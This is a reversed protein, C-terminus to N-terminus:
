GKVLQLEPNLFRALWEVTRNTAGRLSGVAEYANRGLIELESPHALLRSVVFVFGKADQVAIAGGERDLVQYVKQFNFVHPGHVVARRFAAPEIPNQGGKPILSGGMFVLDAMAYLEKLVGLQDVLLIDWGPVPAGSMAATKLGGQRLKRLLAPVREIHRPAIVMRVPMGTERLEQLTAALIEEEGPHTSGAVVIREAGGIGFRQRLGPGIAAADVDLSVNDYKMNGSVFVRDESTGLQRFRDADEQTQALVFSLSAFLPRFLGRFRGYRSASRPSLRANVIGVPVRQRAAETLLNPWIETEALVVCEPQLAQLFSRVSFSFDFPFYLATLRDGALRSAIKQGTPTVTTLVLHYGPFMELMKKVFNEVAMVEGVSVAHVWLIKKGILRERVSNDLVGLRERWLRRASDAQRLRGVFSPLSILAVVFFATNYLFSM